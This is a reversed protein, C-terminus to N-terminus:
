AGLGRTILAATERLRGLLRPISEEPMRVSPIAFNIAAVLTGGGSYLPVGISSVGEEFEGINFSCEERLIQSREAELAVPDTITRETFCERPEKLFASFDEDSLHAMFIKGMSTCHLPSPAGVRSHLNLMHSVRRSSARLLYFAYFGERRGLHTVEGVEDTLAQLHPRALEVIDLGALRDAGLRLLNGGLRYAQTQPDQSLFNRSELTRVIDYVTGKSVSLDKAIESIGKGHSGISELVDVARLLSRLLKRDTGEPANTM